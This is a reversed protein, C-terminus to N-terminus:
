HLDESLFRHKFPLNFGLGGFSLPWATVLARQQQKRPSLAAGGEGPPSLGSNGARGCSTKRQDQDLSSWPHCWLTQPSVPIRRTKRKGLDCCGPERPWAPLLEVCVGFELGMGPAM